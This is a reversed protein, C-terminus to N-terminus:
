IPKTIRVFPLSPPTEEAHAASGVAVAAAVIGAAYLPKFMSALRPAPMLGRHQCESLPACLGGNSSAKRLASWWRTRRPRDVATRHDRPDDHTWRRRATTYWRRPRSPVGPTPGRVSGLLGCHSIERM